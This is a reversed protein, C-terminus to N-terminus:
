YRCVVRTTTMTVHTTTMTVRTTTMTIRTTPMTVGTTPHVMKARGHGFKEIGLWFNRFLGLLVNVFNPSLHVVRFPGEGWIQSESIFAASFRGLIQVNKM